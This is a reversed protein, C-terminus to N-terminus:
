RLPAKRVILYLGNVPQGYQHRLPARLQHTIHLGAQDCQAQLYDLRHAFRAMVHLAYDSKQTDRALEATLCCYGGPSLCAAIKM